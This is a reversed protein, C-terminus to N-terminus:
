EEQAEKEINSLEDKIRKIAKIYGTEFGSFEKLDKHGVPISLFTSEEMGEKKWIMCKREWVKAILYNKGIGKIIDRHMETFEKESLLEVEGNSKIWLHFEKNM